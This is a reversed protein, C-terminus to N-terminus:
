LNCFVEQHVLAPQQHHYAPCRQQISPCYPVTPCPCWQLWALCKSNAWRTRLCHSPHSAQLYMNTRTRLFECIQHDGEQDLSPAKPVTSPYDVRWWQFCPETPCVCCHLVTWHHSCRRVAWLHWVPPQLPWLDKHWISGYVQHVTRCRNLLFQLNYIQITLFYWRTFIVRLNRM